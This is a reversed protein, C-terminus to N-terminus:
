IKIKIIPISYIQSCMDSFCSGWDYVSFSYILKSKSMVFFDKLTDLRYLDASLFRFQQDEDFTLKWIPEDLKDRILDAMIYAIDDDIPYCINDLENHLEQPLKDLNDTLIEFAEDIKLIFKATM